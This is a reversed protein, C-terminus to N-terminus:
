KPEGPPRSVLFAVAHVTCIAGSVPVIGFLLWKPLNLAPSIQLRVFWSFEIGYVVMVAFVALCVWHVAIEVRRRVPAPLRTTVMDVGPHAQRRYATSAGLFTMWVLLHRALEESWFLSANLAYRCFVQVAVIAAMSLGM